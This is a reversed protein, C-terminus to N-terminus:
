ISTLVYISSLTFSDKNQEHPIRDSTELLSRDFILSTAPLATSAMAIESVTGSITPRGFGGSATWGDVTPDLFGDQEVVNVRALETMDSMDDGYLVLKQGTGAVMWPYITTSDGTAWLGIQQIGNAVVKDITRGVKEPQPYDPAVTQDNYKRDLNHYFQNILQKRSTKDAKKILKFLKFIADEDQKSTFSAAYKVDSICTHAFPHDCGDKEIYPKLIEKAHTIFDDNTL